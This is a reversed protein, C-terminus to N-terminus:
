RGNGAYGRGRIGEVPPGLGHLRALDLDLKEGTIKKALWPVLVQNIETESADPYAHHMNEHLLNLWIGFPSMHPNIHITAMPSTYMGHGAGHKRGRIIHKVPMCQIHSPWDHIWPALKHFVEYTRPLYPEIKRIKEDSFCEDFTLEM